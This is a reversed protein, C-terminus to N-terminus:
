ASGGPSLLQTRAFPMTQLVDAIRRVNDTKCTIKKVPGALGGAGVLIECARDIHQELTEETVVGVPYACAFWHKEDDSDFGTKADRYYRFRYVLHWENEGRDRYLAALYDKTDGPIFWLAVFYRNEKFEITM